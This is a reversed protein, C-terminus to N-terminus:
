PEGSSFIFCSSLFSAYLFRSSSNRFFITDKSSYTDSHDLYRGACLILDELLHNQFVVIFEGDNLHAPDCLNRARSIVIVNGNRIFASFLLFLVSSIELEYQYRVIMSTIILTCTAYIHLQKMHIRRDIHVKLFDSSQHFLITQHTRDPFWIRM